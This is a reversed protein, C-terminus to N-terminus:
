ADGASMRTNGLKFEVHMIKGIQDPSQKYNEETWRSLFLIEGGFLDMYTRVAEEYDGRFPLYPIVEM